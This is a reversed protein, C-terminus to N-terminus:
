KFSWDSLSLWPKSESLSFLGKCQKMEGFSGSNESKFIRLTVGLATIDLLNFYNKKGDTESSGASGGGIISLEGLRYQPQTDEPLEYVSSRWVFARHKHGHLALQVGYKAALRQIRVADVAIGFGRYYDETLELDETLTLHHHLALIRLAVSPKEEGWGLEIVGQEFADEQVRGMGALFNKGTELSSSNLAVIEVSVGSPFLFRRGMSLHKNPDHRYIDRYFKRYNSTAADPAQKVEATRDYNAGQTWVIDHNGPVIILSEKDLGLNGLLLTLGKGAEEYEKKNGLFTLDGTVLVLGINENKRKIADSIAAAMTRGGGAGELAWVHQNAHDGVAYHLDTIHLITNGKVRTVDGSVPEPITRTTLIIKQDEDQPESPRVVWITTDMGRLEEGEMIVKGNFRGLVNKDYNPLNPVEAFSYKEFFEVPTKEMKNFKMWAASYPSDRYYPPVLKEEGEPVHPHAEYVRDPHPPIVETVYAIHVHMSGSHFLGVPVPDHESAERALEEWVAIRNDENPRKWWGWWCSGCEEIIKRHENLTDGVLDRFRFLFRISQKDM